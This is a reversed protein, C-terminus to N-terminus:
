EKVLSLVGTGPRGAKKSRLENIQSNLAHVDELRGDREAAKLQSILTRMFEETRKRDLTDLCDQVHTRVDDFHEDRMSLESAAQGCVPDDIAMSLLQQVSVRGDQDLCTLAREVLARCVDISFAEPKLRAVDTANLQGHLLFYVLDREEPAGKYSPMPRDVVTRDRQRRDEKSGVLAPYREILRGQNIGLREAVIRMREEREIPHESKQIIKLIDDVARIRGEVSGSEAKQLNHELAFDLLSPAHRELETFAQPGQKRVFTDPDEGAPLTVVKVGMGSNVFLDLGRLAARVGADDPDFLLVVNSAFRRLVQIHEATLATGLTAVTQTLGAQHLAIADFYGEVVIVTKTRAIAERAIDLAFLTQGKKFLPTDPSNLYKPTGEGIVRGGFGVVRKRLDTITFMVRGRFRDYFGPGSERAIILGASALDSHSFGEKTLSKLLGDWENPAAGLGFAEIASQTMGRQDLYDRAECVGQEERLRRQFWKSAAVNVQEIRATQAAQPGAHGTSEVQIGVKQGLERVIEPFANGTIRTLFTFVNGGAGCGFCHFIQRSPSVTFSPSKEQHFPCLGKLNQGARTLSVHQGVVETIDIRDRIQNIIDESILGRGM